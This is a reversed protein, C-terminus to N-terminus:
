LTTEKTDRSAIFRTVTMTVCIESKFTMHFGPAPDEKTEIGMNLRMDSASLRQADKM